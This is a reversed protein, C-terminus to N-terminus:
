RVRSFARKALFFTLAKVIWLLVITFQIPNLSKSVHTVKGSRIAAVVAVNTKESHITSYTTGFQTKIHCDSNGVLPKNYKKAATVAKKNFFNLFYFYFHSYEIADFLDHHQDLLHQLSFGPYYPHPAIVLLEPNKSKINKLDDFNNISELEEQTINYILIHKGFLTKEAGPILLISKSAAYNKLHESFIVKDHCTIALVHYGKKHARDILDEATYKIDDHPDGKVHCHLDSKLM